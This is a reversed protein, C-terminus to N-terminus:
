SVSHFIKHYAVIQHHVWWGQVPIHLYIPVSERGHAFPSGGEAAALFLADGDGPGQEHVRADEDQIVGGGAHVHGGLELDLLGQVLQHFSAGAEDDGLADAGHEVGVQNQHQLLAADHSLAAMTLQHLGARLVGLDVVALQHIIRLRSADPLLLSSIVSSTQRVCSQSVYRPRANRENM